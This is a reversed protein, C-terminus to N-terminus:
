QNQLSLYEEKAKQLTDLIATRQQLLHSLITSRKYFLSFLTLHGITYRLRHWYRLTFFGSVPLTLFYVAGLALSQSFHYAGIVWLAYFFPFTFIGTTMLIPSIFEEDETLADAVLAPIKYPLYNHILGYLYLPFGLVLFFLTQLSDKLLNRNAHEEQLLENRLRLSQLSALYADIQGKLAQIREPQRERFYAISQVIGKSLLFSEDKKGASLNFEALLQNKFITEIHGLLEDEEETSTHIILGELRSRIQETLAQAAAVPDQRYAEAYEAARIPQGINVFLDSRFRTPDSYNLGIPLIRVGAKFHARAEAGLALRAAGTKLPRLRRENFSTGEPFILLTKKQALYAFCQRFTEENSVGQSGTDERRFIPILNMRSLIWNRIGSGFLTSKAIFFLEQRMVAGIAVPDMMTNPHNSVVLLPGEAPILDRNRVELHRFFVRLGLQFILKLLAYLMPLLYIRAQSETYGYIKNEFHIHYLATSPSVFFRRSL